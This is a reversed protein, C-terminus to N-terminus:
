IHISHWLRHIGKFQSAHLCYFSIRCPCTPNKSVDHDLLPKTACPGARAAINSATFVAVKRWLLARCRPEGEGLSATNTCCIKRRIYKVKWGTASRVIIRAVATGGDGTDVSADLAGANWGSEVYGCLLGSPLLTAKASSVLAEQM